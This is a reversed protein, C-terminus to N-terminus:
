SKKVNMVLILWIELHFIVYMVIFYISLLIDRLNFECLPLFFLRSVILFRQTFSINQENSKM